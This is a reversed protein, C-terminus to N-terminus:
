EMIRVITKPEILNGGGPSSETILCDGEENGMPCEDCHSQAKCVNKIMELASLLDSYNM